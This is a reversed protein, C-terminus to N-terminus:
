FIQLLLMLNIMPSRFSDEILQFIFTTWRISCSLLPFIPELLLKANLWLRFRAYRLTGDTADVHGVSSQHSGLSTMDRGSFHRYCILDILYFYVSVRASHLHLLGSSELRLALGIILKLTDLDVNVELM